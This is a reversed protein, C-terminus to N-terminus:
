NQLWIWQRLECKGLENFHASTVNGVAVHTAVYLCSVPASRQGPSSTLESLMEEKQLFEECLQKMVEEKENLDRESTTMVQEMTFDKAKLVAQHEEKVRKLEADKVQIQRQLRRISQEKSQEVSHAYKPEQKLSALRECLENASPRETDRDKLCHLALPLLSHDPEVQDIDKQRREMETETADEPNPFQRTAIQITLVGHSFCDLMNSYRPPTTLAEPPMYVSTRPCMTLPTVCPNIDILKSMGFDTVKARVGDGILLM